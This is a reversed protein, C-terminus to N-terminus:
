VDPDSRQLTATAVVKEQESGLLTDDEAIGREVHARQWPRRGHRAAAADLIRKLAEMDAMNARRISLVPLSVDV